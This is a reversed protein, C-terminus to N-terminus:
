ERTARPYPPVYPQSISHVAKPAFESNNGHCVICTEMEDGNWPDQPTFDFTMISAHFVAYDSDHCALCALRSPKETWSPSQSHCKTCNRVDQPFIVESFDYRAHIEKPKQVYHGFHVGHVRRALPAAGFGSNSEAWTIKGPMQRQYDHCNKCIDPTFTVAFSTGHM